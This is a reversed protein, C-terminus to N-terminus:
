FSVANSSGILAGSQNGVMFQYGWLGNLGGPNWFSISSTGAADAPILFDFRVTASLIFPSRHLFKPLPYSVDSQLIASQPCYTLLASGSPVGGTVTLTVPGVGTVGAGNLTLVPRQPRITGLDSFSFFDTSEYTLNLGDDPQYADFTADSGGSGFRLGALFETSSLILSSNAKTSKIRWINHTGLAYNNEAVYLKFKLPDFALASTGDFGTAFTIANSQDMFTSSSILQVPWRLVSSSGPPPSLGPAQQGYFVDGNRAIAFPGSPGGIHGVVTLAHTTLEVASLDTDGNLFNASSVILRGDRLFAGDYPYIISPVLPTIGSGDLAVLQLSGGPPGSGSDAIVVRSADPTLRVFAAYVFSPLTGLNTVFTGSATWRDVSSGDFTVFDGNPLACTVSAFAPNAATALQYGSSAVDSFALAACSVLAAVRTFARVLQMRFEQRDDTSM